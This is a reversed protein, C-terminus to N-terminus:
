IMGLGNIQDMFFRGHYQVGNPWKLTGIGEKMGKIYEGEFKRGDAFFYEGYGHSNGNLMKGEYIDGNELTIKGFVNAFDNKWYGEYTSGRSYYVKIGRGHKQNNILSIEGYYIDKNEDNTIQKLQVPVNDDLPSYKLFLKKIQEDTIGFDSITSIKKSSDKFKLEKVRYVSALTKKNNNLILGRCFSQM